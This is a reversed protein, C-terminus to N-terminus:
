RIVGRESSEYFQIVQQVEPTIEMEDRIAQLAQTVNKGSRFLLRYAKKLQSIAHETFNRRKLGVANLGNFRLPEGAALIYPPVDQAVRYGGGIFAHQGIRTFQHVPVLGGISAYDEIVVHGALNVANALIVRNGIHCDHAVHTYAMILCDSGIRTAGGADSTGRNLTAYERITTRDGISLMSDEGKFKLDQPVTSVVAGNFIRCEKGIRAGSAILVHSHIEARDGIETNGEIISYPGVQVGEGLQAAPHVIATKHIAAM